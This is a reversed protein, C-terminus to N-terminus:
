KDTFYQSAHDVNDSKILDDRKISQLVYKFGEKKNNPIKM